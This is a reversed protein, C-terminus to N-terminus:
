NEKSPTAPWRAQAAVDSRVLSGATIFARRGIRLGPPVVAGAGVFAEDDVCVAGCLTCGPALHVHAGVTCDHDVAARTNVLSNAGIRADPQVIAGAMVQAGEGLEVSEDVWAAPHVLPPFRLGRASFTEFLRQRAGGGVTQGVGNLVVVEAADLQGLVAHDDGLVPLGRWQAVGDAALQPDCVGTITWGLARAAAAVVKAHGGAGILVVRQFVPLASRNM